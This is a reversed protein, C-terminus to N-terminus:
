KKLSKLRSLRDEEQKKVIEEQKQPSIKVPTATIPAVPAALADLTKIRETFAMKQEKPSLPKKEPQISLKKLKEERALEKKQEMEQKQKSLQNPLYVYKKYLWFGSFVLPVILFTLIIFYTISRPM